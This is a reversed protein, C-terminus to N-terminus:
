GVQTRMDGGGGECVGTGANGGGGAGLGGVWGGWCVQTHSHEPTSGSLNPLFGLVGARSLVEVTFSSGATDGARTLVRYRTGNGTCPLLVSPGTVSM